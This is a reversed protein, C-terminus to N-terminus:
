GGLCALVGKGFGAGDCGLGGSARIVSVCAVSRSHSMLLPYAQTVSPAVKM